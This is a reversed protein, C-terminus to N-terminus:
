PSTSRAPSRTCAPGSPATWRRPASPTPPSAPMSRVDAQDAFAYAAYGAILPNAIRSSSGPRHRRRQVERCVAHRRGPVQRGRGDTPARRRRGSDVEGNSVYKYIYENRADDGMYFALPKGAVRSPSAAGEHAFRGLATRKTAVSTAHRLSRDRGGLGPTSRTATTTAATPRRRRASTNWRAYKDDSGTTDWGYRSTCGGYRSTAATARGACVNAKATARAPDGAARFFYGAWNEECTLLHGLAYQRHRLQEPHRPDPATPRSGPSWSRMAARRAPSTSRDRRHHPPQLRLGARLRVQRRRPSRSSPRCRPCDVEIDTEGAPRPTHRPPRQRAPLAQTSRIEHNIGLLGPRQQRRDRTGTAVASISWATTTTARVATTAPTPGDNKFASVGLRAPRWRRDAGVRHVGHARISQRGAVQWPAFLRAANGNAHPRLLAADDDGGGCAALGVSGLLATAATGVSGRLLNRRSLRASLVSDIDSQNLHQLRRRQLRTCSFGDAHEHTNGRTPQTRSRTNGGCM